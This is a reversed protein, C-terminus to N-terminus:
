TVHAKALAVEAIGGKEQWLRVSYLANDYNITSGYGKRKPLDEIKAFFYISAESLDDNMGKKLDQLKDYDIVIATKKGEINHYEAFEDANILASRERLVMDKFNSM